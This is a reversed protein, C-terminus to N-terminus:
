TQKKYKMSLYQKHRASSLLEDNTWEKLRRKKANVLMRFTPKCRFKKSIKDFLNHCQNVDSCDDYV